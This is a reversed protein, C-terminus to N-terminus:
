DQLKFKEPLAELENKIAENHKIAKRRDGKKMIPRAQTFYFTARKRILTDPMAPAANAHEDVVPENLRIGVFDVEKEIRLISEDFYMEWGNPLAAKIQELIEDGEIQYTSNQAKTAGSALLLFFIVTLLQKAQRM